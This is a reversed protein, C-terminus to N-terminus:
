MSAVFYIIKPSHKYPCLVQSFIKFFLTYKQIAHPYSASVSYTTHIYLLCSPFWLRPTLICIATYLTVTASIVRHKSNGPVMGRCMELKMRILESILTMIKLKCVYYPVFRPDPYLHQSVGFGLCKAM